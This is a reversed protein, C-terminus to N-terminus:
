RVFGARSCDVTFSIADPLVILFQTERANCAIPRGRILVPQPYNGFGGVTKTKSVHLASHRAQAFAYFYPSYVALPSCAGGTFNLSGRRGSACVNGNGFTDHLLAEFQWLVRGRKSLGSPPGSSARVGTPPQKGHIQKLFGELAALEKLHQTNRSVVCAGFALPQATGGRYVDAVSNCGAQRYALWATEGALFKRRATTDGLRFIAKARANIQADTRLTTQEACGEAGITTLRAARGSPCPLPTFSERIVPPALRVPGKHVVQGGSGGCGAVM